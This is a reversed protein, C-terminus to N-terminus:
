EKVKVYGHKALGAEIQEPTLDSKTEVKISGGDAGTVAVSRPLMGIHRGLLETAHIAAACQPPKASMALQHVAELWALVKEATLQSKAAIKTQAAEVAARFDVNTLLRWAQQKATKSSYGARKAAATANLDKMYEDVFRSQRATLKSM